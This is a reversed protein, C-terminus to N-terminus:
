SRLLRTAQISAQHYLKKNRLLLIFHRIIAKNEITHRWAMMVISSHITSQWNRIIEQRFFVMLSYYIKIVQYAKKFFFFFTQCFSRSMLLIWTWVRSRQNVYNRTEKRSTNGFLVFFNYYFLYSKEIWFCYIIVM